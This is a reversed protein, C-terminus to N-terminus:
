GHGAAPALAEEFFRGVEAFVLARDLDRAVHHFGRRLWLLEADPLGERFREVARPDIVHDSQSVAVLTRVRVDGQTAWARRQLHRLDLLRAAPFRSLRPANARQEEDELDAEGKSIWRLGEFGRGGLRAYLRALRSRLKLAPALLVLARPPEGEVCALRQALLAGMSFGVAFAPVPGKAVQAWAADVAADWDRWTTWLLDEPTGGHGPLRPVVVHFGKAALSEALLGLEWPSGTLGHVLLAAGRSVALPPGLRLTGPPGGSDSM